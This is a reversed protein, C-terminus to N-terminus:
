REPKPNWERALKQADAIQTSTMRTALRDRSSAAPPNGQAASLNFWMHALVYDQPVGQGYLYKSALHLQARASGQDAAKRFWKVAEAYDPPVGTGNSYM